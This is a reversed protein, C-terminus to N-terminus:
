KSRMFRPLQMVAKTVNEVSQIASKYGMSKVMYCDIKFKSSLETIFNLRETPNSTPGSSGTPKRFRTEAAKVYPQLQVNQMVM